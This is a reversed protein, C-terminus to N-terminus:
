IIERIHAKEFPSRLFLPMGDEKGRKQIAAAGMEHQEKAAIRTHRSSLFHVIYFFHSTLLIFLLLLFVLFRSENERFHAPLCFIAHLSVPLKNNGGLGEVLPDWEKSQQQTRYEPTKNPSLTPDCFLHAGKTVNVPQFLCAPLHSTNVAAAKIARRGGLCISEYFFCIEWNSKNGSLLHSHAVARRLTYSLSQKACYCSGSNPLM